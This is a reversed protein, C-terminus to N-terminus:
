GEGPSGSGVWSNLGNSSFAGGCVNGFAAKWIPEHTAACRPMDPSIDLLSMAFFIRRTAWSM